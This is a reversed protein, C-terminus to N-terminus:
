WPSWLTHVSRTFCVFDWTRVCEGRLFIDDTNRHEEEVSISPLRPSPVDCYTISELIAACYNIHSHRTSAPPINTDRCGTQYTRVLPERDGRPYPGGGGGGVTAITVNVRSALDVDESHTAVMYLSRGIITRFKRSCHYTPLCSFRNGDSGEPRGQFLCRGSGDLRVVKGYQLTRCSTNLRWKNTFYRLNRHLKITTSHDVPFSTSHHM